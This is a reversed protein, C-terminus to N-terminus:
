QNRHCSGDTRNPSASRGPRGSRFCGNSDPNFFDVSYDTKYKQNTAAVFRAVATLDTILVAAGEVVAPAYPNDTTVACNPNAVLNGAKRSGRSSNFSVSDQLWM